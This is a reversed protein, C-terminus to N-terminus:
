RTSLNEFTDSKHRILYVYGYRRFDDIFTVYYRYADRTASRFSGYEDTHIIDLLDKGKEFSVSFPSKTMKGLLCSECTDHSKHEFSELVGDKQLQAIRKKNIHGLRCHWLCTKDLDTSSDVNLSYNFNNLNEVVM